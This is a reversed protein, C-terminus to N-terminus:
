PSSSSRSITGATRSRADSASSAYTMNLLLPRELACPFPSEPRSPHIECAGVFARMSCFVRVPPEHLRFGANLNLAPAPAGISLKHPTTKRAYGCGHDAQEGYQSRNAENQGRRAEELRGTILRRDGSRRGPGSVGARGDRRRELRGGRRPRRAPRRREARALRRGTPGAGSRGGRGPGARSDGWALAGAASADGRSRLRADALPGLTVIVAVVVIAMAVLRLVLRVMLMVAVALAVLVVAVPVAVPVRAVLVAVAMAVVVLPVVVALVVAPRLRLLIRRRLGM